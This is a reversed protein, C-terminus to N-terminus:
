DVPQGSLMHILAPRSESGMESPAQEFDGGALLLGLARQEVPMFCFASVSFRQFSFDFALSARQGGRPNLSQPVLVGRVM